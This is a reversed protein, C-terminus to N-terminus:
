TTGETHTELYDRAAQFLRDRVPRLEKDDMYQENAVFGRLLSMLEHTEAIAPAPAYTRYEENQFTTIDMPVRAREVNLKVPVLQVGESSKRDLFQEAYLVPFQEVDLVLVMRCIGAQEINAMKALQLMLDRSDHLAGNWKKEETM